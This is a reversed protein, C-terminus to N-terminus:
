QHDDHRQRELTTGGCALVNPSSAPFDVHAQGDDVGDSSGDDGAAVTITVGLTAADQFAQDFQQFAQETWNSEPGGWSISIVSPKNM